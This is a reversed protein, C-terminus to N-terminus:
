DYRYVGWAIILIIIIVIFLVSLRSIDNILTTNSLENSSEEIVDNNIFKPDISVIVSKPKINMKSPTQYINEEIHIDFFFLREQKLSLRSDKEDGAIARIIIMYNGPIENEPVSVYINVLSATVAKKLGPLYVLEVAGFSTKNDMHFESPSSLVTWGDPIELADLNVNYDNIGSNWFLVGLTISEGATVIEFDSKQLAGLNFANVPGSLIFAVFISAVILSLHRIEM